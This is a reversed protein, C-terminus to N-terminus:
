LPPPCSSHFFCATRQAKLSLAHVKCLCSSEVHKAMFDCPSDGKGPHNKLTNEGGQPSLEKGKAPFPSTYNWSTFIRQAPGCRGKKGPRQRETAPFARDAASGCAPSAEHGRSGGTARAPFRPARRPFHRANGPIGGKRRLASAEEPLPAPPAGDGSCPGCPGVAAFLPRAKRGTMM